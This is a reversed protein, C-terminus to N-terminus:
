MEEETMQVFKGHWSHYWVRGSYGDVSLMGYVKGDKLTHITYYGYFTDVESDVKVGPMRADLFAQAEKLAEEPTVSMKGKLAEREFRRYNRGPNGGMMGYGMMGGSMHGYKLNWMMNPGPEPFIAGTYKDVLLEFAHVGTNKEEVEAYFHNSFEMVEEVELDPNEWAALYKEVAESAEEITIPEGAAEPAYDWGGMMGCGAMGPGFGMMGPGWGERGWSGSGWGMMGPGGGRRGGGMMGQAYLLGVAGGVLLVVLFPILYKRM